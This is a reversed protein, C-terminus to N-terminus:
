IANNNSKRSFYNIVSTIFIFHILLPVFIKTFVFQFEIRHQNILILFVDVIYKPFYILDIPSYLITSFFIKCIIYISILSYLILFNTKKSKFKYYKGTILLQLARMSDARLNPIQFYDSLVWYGDTRFFPNLNFILRIIFLQFIYNFYTTSFLITYFLFPTILLVEFYLGALNIIIRKKKPLSWIETLDIYFAPLFFYIGFGIEKPRKGFFVCCTAHGIEHIINSILFYLFIFSPFVKFNSQKSTLLILSIINLLIIIPVIKFISQSFLFQLKNGILNVYREPILKVKLYLYKQKKPPSVIENSNIIGTRVFTSIFLDLIEKSSVKIQSLESYKLSIEDINRKGDIFNLLEIINSNASFKYKHVNHTIIFNENDVREYLIDKALVPIWNNDYSINNSLM